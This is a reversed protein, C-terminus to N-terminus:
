AAGRAGANDREARERQEDCMRCLRSNRETARYHATLDADGCAEVAELAADLQEADTTLCALDALQEVVGRLSERLRAIETDKEQVTETELSELHPLLVDRLHVNVIYRDRSTM